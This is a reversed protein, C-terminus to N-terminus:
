CLWHGSKAACSTGLSRLVALSWAECYMLHGPKAACCTGLFLGFSGSVLFRAPSRDPCIGAITWAWGFMQEFGAFDSGLLGLWVLASILEALGGDVDLYDM